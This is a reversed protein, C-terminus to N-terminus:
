TTTGPAVFQTSGPHIHPCDGNKHQEEIMWQNRVAIMEDLFFSLSRHVPLEQAIPQFAGFWNNAQEAASSNFRWKSNEMVLEPFAAPNCNLVCFSDQESHTHKAHFVDLVLAVDAFYNDGNAQMMKLLGCNHDYFIHTPHYHPYQEPFVAKLFELVASLGEANYLTARGIIIGCCLVFLQENHTWRRSMRNVKSEISNSEQASESRDEPATVMDSKNEEQLRHLPKTCTLHGTEAVTNCDSVACLLAMHRHESCFRDRTSELPNTCIPRFSCCTHGLTVGDTVGAFLYKKQGDEDEMVHFCKKCAHGWSSQGNGATLKNRAELASTYRKSQEGGHPLHLIDNHHYKHRLLSHLFFTDWITEDAVGLTLRSFNPIITSTKGLALNYILAISQASAHQFTMQNEFLIALSSEVLIQESIQLIDPIGGYYIRQALPESARTVYYNHFYRTNCTRCYLSVSSAPLVGRKLTFLKCEVSRLNGLQQSQCSLTQCSKIPPYL